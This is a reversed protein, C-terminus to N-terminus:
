AMPHKRMLGRQIDTTGGWVGVELYEMAHSLCKSQVPCKRCIQVAIQVNERIENTTEEESTSMWYKPDEGVCAGRNMWESNHFRLPQGELARDRDRRNPYRGGGFGMLLRLNLLRFKSRSGLEM